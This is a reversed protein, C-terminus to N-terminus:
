TKCGVQRGLKGMAGWRPGQHDAGGEEGPGLDEGQRLGAELRDGRWCRAVWKGAGQWWCRALVM